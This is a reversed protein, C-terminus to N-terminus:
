ITQNFDDLEKQKEVAALHLRIYRLLFIAKDESKFTGDGCDAIPVPFTFIPKWGDSDYHDEPNDDWTIVEYWLEGKRYYLFRVRNDKILMKIDMTFFAITKKRRSV